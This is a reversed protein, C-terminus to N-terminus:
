TSSQRQFLGSPPQAVEGDLELGMLRAQLDATDLGCRTQLADLGVPDFALALLLADVSAEGALEDDGDSKSAVALASAYASFPWKLEELIDQASEVLKADQKILLHCGRSQAAHISGSIAFVDKGQDTTLRATILSGSKLM